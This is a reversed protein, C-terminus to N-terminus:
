GTTVSFSINIVKSHCKFVTGTVLAPASINVEMIIPTIVVCRYRGYDEYEISSFILTSDTEGELEEFTMTTRNMKEWQYMPSPHSDAECTLNVSDGYEVFLDIPDLLIEPSVYLTVSSTDYGAENIVICTYVGGNDEGTIDDLSLRYTNSVTDLSDLIDSVDLPTDTLGDLVSTDDGRIWRFMNSPGGDASCTFVASDRYSVTTNIPDVTISGSPSM